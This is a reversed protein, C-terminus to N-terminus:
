AGIPGGAYVESFYQDLLSLATGGGLIDQEFILMELMHGRWSRPGSPTPAQAENGVQDAGFVVYCGPANPNQFTKKVIKGTSRLDRIRMKLKGRSASMIALFPGVQSWDAPTELLDEGLAKVVYKDRQRMLRVNKKPSCISFINQPSGLLTEINGVAALSFTSGDLKTKTALYDLTDREHLAAPYDAAQSLLPGMSFEPASLPLTGSRPSVSTINDGTMTLDREDITCWSLCDMQGSFNTINLGLGPAPGDIKLVM